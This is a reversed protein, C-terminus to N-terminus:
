EEDFEVLEDQGNKEILQLIEEITPQATQQAGAPTGIALGCVVVFGHILSARFIM